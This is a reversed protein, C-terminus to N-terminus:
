FPRKCIGQTTFFVNERMAPARADMMHENTPRPPELLSDCAWIREFRVSVVRVNCKNNYLNQTVYMQLQCLFKIQFNM